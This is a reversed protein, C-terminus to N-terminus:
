LPKMFMPAAEDQPATATRRRAAQRRVKDVQNPLFCLVAYVAAIGAAMGDKLTTMMVMGGAILLQITWGIIVSLALYGGNKTIWKDLSTIMSWEQEMKEALRGLDYVPATMTVGRSIPACPGGEKRCIGYGLTEIIADHFSGYELIDEFQALAEPRYIGGTKMSEHDIKGNLLKVEKPAIAPQITDAVTVWGDESLITLPFHTSCDVKSAHRSAIRSVPDMFLQGELPIKTMCTEEMAIIAGIKTPCQFTFLIDGRRKGFRDGKMPIIGTFDPLAAYKNNCLEKNINNRLKGAAQELQYVIYDDKQDSWTAIDMQRDIWPYDRNKSLVMGRQETYVLKGPPCGPLGANEGTVKFLLKLKHDVLLGNEKIFTGEQVKMLKCRMPAPDWIYTWDNTVCGGAAATCSKPLKVHDFTAEVQHLTQGNTTATLFEEKELTIRYQSMILVDNIVTDELKMEQGKCWVKGSTETHTVGLENVSLITEENMAIGHTTGYHSIFTNTNVMNECQSASTAQVVEIEPIKIFREHSFAGCFLMWQSRKVKCKYGKLVQNRMQQLIAYAEVEKENENESECATYISLRQINTPNSCDKYKVRYVDVEMMLLALVVLM